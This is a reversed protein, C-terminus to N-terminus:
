ALPVGHADKDISGAFIMIAEVLAWIATVVWGMGCTLLFILLQTIARGKFGLYFNHIGLGGLFLALLGATTKSKPPGAAVGGAAYLNGGSLGGGSLGGGSAFPDNFHSM